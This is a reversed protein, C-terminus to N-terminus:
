PRETLSERLAALVQAALQPVISNGAFELYAAAKRLLEPNDRFHGIGVNCSNCLLKRVTGKKHCHDVSLAGAIGCIACKGDQGIFMADYEEVTLGYKLRLKSRRQSALNRTRVEEPSLRADWRSRKVGGRAARYATKRATNRCVRCVRRNAEPFALIPKEVRCIRCERM